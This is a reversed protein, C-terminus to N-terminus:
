RIGRSTFVESESQEDERGKGKRRIPRGYSISVCQRGRISEWVSRVKQRAVGEVETEEVEEEVELFFVVRRLVFRAPVEM